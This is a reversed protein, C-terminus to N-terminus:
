GWEAGPQLKYRRDKAAMHVLIKTLDAQPLIEAPIIMIFCRYLHGEATQPPQSLHKRQTGKPKWLEQVHARKREKAEAKEGAGRSFWSDTEKPPRNILRDAQPSDLSVWRGWLM